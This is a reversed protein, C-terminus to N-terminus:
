LYLCRTHSHTHHVRITSSHCYLAVTRGLGTGCRRDFPTSSTHGLGPLLALHEDEDVVAVAAGGYRGGGYGGGQRTTQYQLGLDDPLASHVYLARTQGAGATLAHSELPQLLPRSPHPLVQGPLLRLPADLVIETTADWM